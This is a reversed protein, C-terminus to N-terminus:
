YRIPNLTARFDLRGRHRKRYSEYLVLEEIVINWICDTFHIFYNLKYQYIGLSSAANLEPKSRLIGYVLHKPDTHYRLLIHHFHLIPLLGCNIKLVSIM